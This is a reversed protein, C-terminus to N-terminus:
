TPLAEGEELQEPKVMTPSEGFIDCFLLIFDWVLNGMSRNHTSQTMTQKSRVFCLKQKNVKRDAKTHTNTRSQKTSVATERSEHQLQLVCLFYACLYSLFGPLCSCCLSFFKLHSTQGSFKPFKGQLDAAPTTTYISAPVGNSVFSEAAGQHSCSSSCASFM